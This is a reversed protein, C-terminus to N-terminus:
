NVRSKWFIQYIYQATSCRWKWNYVQVFKKCILHIQKRLKRAILVTDLNLKRIWIWVFWPQRSNKNLVCCMGHASPVGHPSPLHHILDSHTGTPSLSSTGTSPPQPSHFLDTWAILYKSCIYSLLPGNQFFDAIRSQCINGDRFPFLLLYKLSLFCMSRWINQCKLCFFVQSM